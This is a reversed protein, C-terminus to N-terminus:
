KESSSNRDSFNKYKVSNFIANRHFLELYVEPCLKVIFHCKASNNYLLTYHMHICAKKFAVSKKLEVWSLKVRWSNFKLHQKPTTNKQGHRPRPRKINYRQSRSKIKTAENENDNIM